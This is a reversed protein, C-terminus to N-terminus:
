RCTVAEVIIPKDASVLALAEEHPVGLIMCDLMATLYDHMQQVCAEKLRQSYEADKVLEPALMITQSM